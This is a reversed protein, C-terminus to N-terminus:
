FLNQLYQNSKEIDKISEEMEVTIKRALYIVSGEPAEKKRGVRGAIQVLSYRDYINHDALYIIVQLDKVTVGRELVATTVLYKYKGKRFDEIVKGRYPHKSHVYNGDKVFVKLLNFVNECIDITPTFIFVPKNAKLFEKTYKIMKLILLSKNNKVIKPVPLPKRHFRVYLELVEGGKKKFREVYEKSPTASLLVYNGKLSRFFFTELIDSGKYPFADIEDMILLDFYKEYRFLQHTTLCLLDGSLEETHGGYLLTVKNNVFISKFRYYLEIIVDRRPCSFGVKKGKSIAYRIISLVIETKGSGCVAKVLSNKRDKFNRVLERSLAKQEKSLRYNLKYDANRPELIPEDAEKGRFSICRRCYPKGNLYGISHIDTNGCIPCIFSNHNEM